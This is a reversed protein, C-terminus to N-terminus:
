PDMEKGIRDLAELIPKYHGGQGPDFFLDTPDDPLLEGGPNKFIRTLNRALPGLLDREQRLMRNEDMLDENEQELTVLQESKM